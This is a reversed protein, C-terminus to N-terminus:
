FSYGWWSAYKLEMPADMTVDFLGDKKVWPISASGSPPKSFLLAKRAHRIIDRSEQSVPEDAVTSAWDLAKNLLEETISPYFEVIDM